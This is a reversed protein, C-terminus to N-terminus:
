GDTRARRQEALKGMRAIMTDFRENWGERPHVELRDGVGIVMVERPLGLKEIQWAPLRVRHNADLELTETMSFVAQDLATEDEGPFLSPNQRGAQFLADFTKEPYLRLTAGPFWPVAMWTPGDVAPNWRARFKAPLALRQKADIIAEAHGTFPLAKM